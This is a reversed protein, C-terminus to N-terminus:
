SLAIQIKPLIRGNINQFVLQESLKQMSRQLVDVTPGKKFVSAPRGPVKRFLEKSCSNQPFKNAGAETFFFEVSFMM